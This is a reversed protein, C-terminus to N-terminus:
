SDRSGRLEPAIQKQKYIKTMKQKPITIPLPFLKLMSLRIYIIYVYLFVYLFVYMIVYTYM